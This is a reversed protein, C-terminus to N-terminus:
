MCGIPRAPDLANAEPSLMAAPVITFPIMLCSNPFNVIEHMFVRIENM